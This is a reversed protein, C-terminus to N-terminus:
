KVLMNLVAFRVLTATNACGTKDLLKKRRSEITRVSVFLNDAIEKNSLGEAVLNLVEQESKTLQIDTRAHGGHKIMRLVFGTCLYLGQDLVKRLCHEYEEVGAHITLYGSIGNQIMNEVGVIDEKGSSITIIKLDPHESILQQSSRLLGRIEGLHEAFIIKTDEGPFVLEASTGTLNFQYEKSSDLVKRVTSIFEESGAIWINFKM